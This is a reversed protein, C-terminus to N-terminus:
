RSWNKSRWVTVPDNISVRWKSLRIPRNRWGYCWCIKYRSYFLLVMLVVGVAFLVLVFFRVDKGANLQQATSKDVLATLTVQSSEGPLLLGCVRDVKVWRKSIRM